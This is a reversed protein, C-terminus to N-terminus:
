ERGYVVASDFFHVGVDGASIVFTAAFHFADAIAKLMESLTSCSVIKGEAEM